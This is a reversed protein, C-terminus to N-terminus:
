FCCVLVLTKLFAKKDKPFFSANKMLFKFLCLFKNSTKVRDMNESNM